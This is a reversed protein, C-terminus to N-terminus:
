IPVVQLTIFDPVCKATRMRPWSRRSRKWNRRWANRKPITRKRDLIKVVTDCATTLPPKKYINYGLQEHLDFQESNFKYIKSMISGDQSNRNISIDVKFDNM